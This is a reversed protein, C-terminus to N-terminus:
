KAMMEEIMALNELMGWYTAFAEARSMGTSELYDVEVADKVRNLCGQLEKDAYMQFGNLATNMKGDTLYKDEIALYWGDENQVIVFHRNRITLDKVITKM